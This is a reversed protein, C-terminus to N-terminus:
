SQKFSNPKQIWWILAEQNSPHDKVKSEHSQPFEWLSSRRSPRGTVIAPVEEKVTRGGRCRPSCRKRPVFCSIMSHHIIIIILTIIIINISSIIFLSCKTCQLVDALVACFLEVWVCKLPWEIVHNRLEKVEELVTRGANACVCDGANVLENETHWLCECRMNVCEDLHAAYIFHIM